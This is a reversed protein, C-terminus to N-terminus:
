KENRAQKDVEIVKKQTNKKKLQQGGVKAIVKDSLERILVRPQQTNLYLRGGYDDKEEM